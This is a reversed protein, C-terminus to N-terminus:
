LHTVDEVIQALNFGQPSAKLAFAEYESPIAAYAEMCYADFWRWTMKQEQGWTIVTLGEPSYGCIPVAHGGWSGAAADPSTPDTVDWLGGVQAQASLPMSVGIYIGALIWTAIQIFLHRTVPLAVFALIKEGGIGTKRWYNLVDIENAGNDNQGTAPDYGTVDEYAKLVDADVDSVETGTVLKSWIKRMHPAASCTCCGIKDNLFMGWDTIGQTYDVSAPPVAMKPDIYDAGTLTRQDVKRPLLGLKLDAVPIGSVHVPIGTVESM